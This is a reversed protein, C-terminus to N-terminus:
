DTALDDLKETFVQAIVRTESDPLDLLGSLYADLEVMDANGGMSLYALWIDWSSLGTLMRVEQLSGYKTRLADLEVAGTAERALRSVHLIQAHLRAVSYVIDAWAEQRQKRLEVSRARSEAALKLLAKVDESDYKPKM